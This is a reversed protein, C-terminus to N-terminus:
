WGYNNNLRPNKDVESQAIPLFYMRENWARTEFSYNENWFGADENKYIDFGHKAGGERDAIMWRRNDFYRHGEFALEVMRERRILDRLKAVTLPIGAKSYADRIRPLEVRDRILDWYEFTEPRSLPDVGTAAFYELAAEAHNLYLEGLRFVAYGYDGKTGTAPDDPRIYKCCLLGTSSYNRGSISGFGNRGDFWSQYYVNEEWSSTNKIAWRSNTTETENGLVMYSYQGPFLINAYFRPDRNKFKRYIKIPKGNAVYSDFGTETAYGPQDEPMLGNAMFYENVHDVLPSIGNYGGFQIPSSHQRFDSVSFNQKYFINEVNPAGGRAYTMLDKYSNYGDTTKHLNRGAGRCAQIAELSLDMAKKWKEADFRTSILSEGSADKPAIRSLDTGSPSKMGNYLPSAAYLWLRSRLFRASLQSARAARDSTSHTYFLDLYDLSKILLTDIYEVCDDFGSRPLGSETLDVVDQGTYVRDIIPVPGYATLLLFYYYAQLFYAEGKWWNREDDRFKVDKCKDVNDLFYLSTRIAQYYRSWHNFIPSSASYQGADKYHPGYNNWIYDAENCALGPYSQFDIPSYYYSYVQTLVKIVDDKAKFLNEESLKEEPIQNLFDSCSVFVTIALLLLSIRKM